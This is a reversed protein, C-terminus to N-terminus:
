DTRGESRGHDDGGGSVAATLSTQIGQVLQDLSWRATPGPAEAALPASPWVMGQAPLHIFGARIGASDPRAPGPATVAHMLGYFLHNCVYSGATFSVEVPLGAARVAAAMRKVPLGTFYAAPGGPVVPVDIPQQGANDPIRADDLNVAVRELSIAQRSAALGLAVVIQPQQHALHARLDAVCRGFQCPLEVAEILHDGIRQGQLAQAVLWSENQAHGGFPAFGTLLIKM